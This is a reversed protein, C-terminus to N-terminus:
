DASAAAPTPRATDDEAVTISVLQQGFTDFSVPVTRGAQKTAEWALYALDELGLGDSQIRSAKTKYKREWLMVCWPTTTVQYTDDATTVTLQLQM